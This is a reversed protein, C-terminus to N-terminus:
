EEYPNGTKHDDKENTTTTHCTTGGSKAVRVRQYECYSGIGGACQSSPTFLTVVRQHAAIGPSKPTSGDTGCDRTDGSAFMGTNDFSLLTSQSSWNRDGGHCRFETGNLMIRSDHISQCRMSQAFTTVNRRRTRIGNTSGQRCIHYWCCCRLMNTHRHLLAFRDGSWHLIWTSGCHHTDFM